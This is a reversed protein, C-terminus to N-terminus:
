RNLKYLEARGGNVHPHLGIRIGNGWVEDGEELTQTGFQAVSVEQSAMTDPELIEDASTLEGKEKHHEKNEM